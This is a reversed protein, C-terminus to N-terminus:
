TSTEFTQLWRDWIKNYKSPCGRHSYILKKKYPLNVEVIRNTLEPPNPRMGLRAIVNRASFLTENSFIKTFKDMDPEPFIGLLCPKPHLTLPSGMTDHLFPVIQTWFGQDRPCNWILHYFKCREQNCRPCNTSQDQKYKSIRLPTLYSRHLIFIQTFRDSLKPSVLKCTDLAESWEEDETSGVDGEWRTKLAYASTSAQPLSLMNYFHSIM